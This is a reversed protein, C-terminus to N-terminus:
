HLSENTDYCFFWGKAKARSHNEISKRNAAAIEVALALDEADVESHLKEAVVDEAVESHLREADADEVM